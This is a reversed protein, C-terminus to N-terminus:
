VARELESLQYDLRPLIKLAEAYLPHLDDATCFVEPAFFKRAEWWYRYEATLRSLEEEVAAKREAERRRAAERERVEQCRSPTPPGTEIGLGFDNCLRLVAQPFPLDFLKEVFDIVSGGEGCGFCKWGPKNGTFLKLSPTKESHFPCLIYGNRDPHYGYFEFVREVPLEEKIRRALEAGNTWQTREPYRPM